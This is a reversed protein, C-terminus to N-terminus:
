HTIIIPSQAIIEHNNKLAVLYAGSSLDQIQIISNENINSWKKVPSGNPTLLTVEDYKKTSQVTFFHSAPNPYILSNETTHDVRVNSTVLSNDPSQHLFGQELTLSHAYTETMVEGLTWDFYINNVTYSGGNSTIVEKDMVQSHLTGLLCLYLATMLITKM